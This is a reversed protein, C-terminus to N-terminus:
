LRQKWPSLKGWVTTEVPLPCGSQWLWRHPWHVCGTNPIDSFSPPCGSLQAIKCQLHRLAKCSPQAKSTITTLAQALTRGFSSTLQNADRSNPNDSPRFLTNSLCIFAFPKAVSIRPAISGIKLYLAFSDNLPYGFMWAVRERRALRM